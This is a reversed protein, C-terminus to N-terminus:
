YHFRPPPSSGQFGITQFVSHSSLVTHPHTSPFSTTYTPCPFFRSLVTYLAAASGELELVLLNNKNGEAEQSVFELAILNRCLCNNNALLYM